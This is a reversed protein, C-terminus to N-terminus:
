AIMVRQKMGGSFQHPYENIRQEPDPIGLRKFMEIVKTKAEKKSLDYHQMLIEAVQKGVRHTPNLSATPDQFVMGIKKGRIARMKKGYKKFNLLDVEKVGDNFLVSGSDIRGNLPLLQMISHITVSKGCGSEGVIALLKGRAVNFYVNKLIQVTEKGDIFSTSLNKVELISKKNEMSVVRNM